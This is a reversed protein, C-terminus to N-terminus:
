PRYALLMCNDGRLKTQTGRKNAAYDYSDFNPPISKHHHCPQTVVQEPEERDGVDPPEVDSKNKEIKVLGKNDAIINYKVHSKHRGNEDKKRTINRKKVSKGASVNVQQKIKMKWIVTNVATTEQKM